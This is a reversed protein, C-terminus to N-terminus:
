FLSLFIQANLAIEVVAAEYNPENKGNVSFRPITGRPVIQNAVRKKWLRGAHVLWSFNLGM